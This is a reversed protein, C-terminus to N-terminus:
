HRLSRQDILCLILSTHVRRSFFKTGSYKTCREFIKNKTKTLDLYPDKLSLCEDGM